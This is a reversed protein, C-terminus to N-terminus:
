PGDDRCRVGTNRRLDAEARHRSAGDGSKSRRPFARAGRAFRLQKVVVPDDLGGEFADGAERSPEAANEGVLLRNSRAKGFALDVESRLQCTESMAALEGDGAGPAVLAGDWPHDDSGGRGPPLVELPAQLPAAAFPLALAARLLDNGV